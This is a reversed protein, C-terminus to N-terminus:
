QRIRVNGRSSKLWSLRSIDRLLGFFCAASCWAALSPELAFASGWTVTQGFGLSMLRPAVVLAAVCLAIDLGTGVAALVIPSRAGRADAKDRVEKAWGLAGGTQLALAAVHVFAMVLLLLHLRMLPFPRAASGEFVITRAGEVLAPLSLVSQLLSSQAAVVAVAADLEPWVVIRSSFGEISGEITATRGEGAGGVVWGYGFDSNKELPEFLARVAQPGFPPRRQKEPAALFALFLGLDSASSVASESPAEFPRPAANRPLAMGFFCASGVSAGAGLSEPRASSHKMGLPRLIREAVLDPYEKGSAKEMALGLAQYGAEVYHFSAGPAAVPWAKGFARVATELDPDFRREDDFGRNTVGSTHSLLHRITVAGGSGDAFRFWPLYSRVPADLDLKRDRVLSLATAGALSASADGIFLPTDATLATGAGDTGFADVYLVSGKEVVAVAYGSFAQRKREVRFFTALDTYREPGIDPVYLLLVIAAAIVLVPLLGRLIKAM